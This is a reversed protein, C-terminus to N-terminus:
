PIGRELFPALSALIEPNRNLEVVLIFCYVFVVIKSVLTLRHNIGNSDRSIHFFRLRKRSKTIDNFVYNKMQDQCFLTPTIGLPIGETNIMDLFLHSGYALLVLRTLLQYPRVYPTAIPIVSFGWLLIVVIAPHHTLPHRCRDTCTVTKQDICLWRELKNPLFALIGGLVVCPLILLKELVSLPNFLLIDGLMVAIAFFFHTSNKM